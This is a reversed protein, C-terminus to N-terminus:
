GNSFVVNSVDGVRESEEPFKFYGGPKRFIMWPKELDTLIM